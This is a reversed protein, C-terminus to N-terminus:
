NDGEKVLLDYSSKLKDLMELFEPAVEKSKLYSVLQEPNEAFQQNLRYDMYFMLEKNKFDEPRTKKLFHYLKDYNKSIRKKKVAYFIAISMTLGFVLLPSIRIIDAGVFFGAIVILIASIIITKKEHLKQDEYLSVVDGYKEM